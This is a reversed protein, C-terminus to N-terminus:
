KVWHVGIEKELAKCEADGTVLEAKHMKALATAFSHRRHNRPEPQNAKV